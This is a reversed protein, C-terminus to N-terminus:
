SFFITGFCETQALAKKGFFFCFLISNKFDAVLYHKPNKLFDFVQSYFDSKLIVIGDIEVRRFFHLKQKSLTEKFDMFTVCPFPNKFFLKRMVHIFGFHKTKDPSTFSLKQSRHGRQLGSGVNCHMPFM